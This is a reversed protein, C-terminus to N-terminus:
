HALTQAVAANFMAIPDFPPDFLNYVVFAM